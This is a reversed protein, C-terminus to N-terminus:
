PNPGGVTKAMHVITGQGPRSEILTRDMLQQILYIGRGHDTTLGEYGHLDPPRYGKLDFGVGEDSVELVLEGNSLTMKVAIAGEDPYAHTQANNVAEVLATTIDHMLETPIKAKQGLCGLEALIIQLNQERSSFRLERHTATSQPQALEVVIVTIASHTQTSSREAALKQVQKALERSDQWDADPLVHRMFSEEVDPPPVHFETRASGLLVLRDGPEVKVEREVVMLGPFLGLSHVGDLALVEDDGEVRRVAGRVRDGICVYSVVREKPDFLGYFLSVSPRPIFSKWLTENIALIAERPGPEHLIQNRFTGRVLCALTHAGSGIRPSSGCLIVHRGGQEVIDFFVGESPLDTGRPGPAGALSCPLSPPLLLDHHTAMRPSALHPEIPQSSFAEEEITTAHISTGPGEGASALVQAVTEKMAAMKFPKVLFDNVGIRMAEVVSEMSGYASCIITKLSPQEKKLERIMDLGSLGSMRLDSIILDFPKERAKLMGEEGSNATEVHHGDDSLMQQLAWKVSREDV